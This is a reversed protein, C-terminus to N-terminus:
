VGHTTPMKSITGLAEKKEKPKISWDMKKEQDRM